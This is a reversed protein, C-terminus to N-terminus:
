LNTFKKDNKSFISVAKKLIDRELRAEKLEKKLQSIERESETMAVNGHGPFANEHHKFFKSRWTYITNSSIDFRESLEKITHDDRLSLKVIELKEDKTYKRRLKTM